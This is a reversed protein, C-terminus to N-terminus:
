CKVAKFESTSEKYKYTQTLTNAPYYRGKWPLIFLESQKRSLSETTNDFTMQCTHIINELM